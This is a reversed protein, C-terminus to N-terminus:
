NEGKAITDILTRATAIQQIPQNFFPCKTQEHPVIHWLCKKYLVHSCGLVVMNSKHKGYCIPCQHVIDGPRIPEEPTIEFLQLYM